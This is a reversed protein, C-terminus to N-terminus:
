LEGEGLMGNNDDESYEMHLMRCSASCYTSPERSDSDEELFEVHCWECSIKEPEAEMEYQDLSLSEKWKDEQSEGFQGSM